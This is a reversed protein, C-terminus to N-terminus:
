VSANSFVSCDYHRKITILALKIYKYHLSYVHVRNVFFLLLTISETM